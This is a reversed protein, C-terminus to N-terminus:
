DVEVVVLILRILVLNIQIKTFIWLRKIYALMISRPTSGKWKRLNKNLLKMLFERLKLYDASIVYVANKILTHTREKGMQVEVRPKYERFYEMQKPMSIVGGLLTPTLPDFGSAGSAFSVGTLLEEMSLKPDLYPPVYDKMGAYSAAYDTILRGNTLRGTPTQNVFDNGYPPFNGRSIIPIYNNNGPDVFSDGFVFIALNSSNFGPAQKQALSLLILKLSDPFLSLICLSRGNSTFCSRVIGGECIPSSVQRIKGGSQTIQEGLGM